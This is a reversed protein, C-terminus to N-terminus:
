KAPGPPVERGARIVADFASPEVLLAQLHGFRGSIAM